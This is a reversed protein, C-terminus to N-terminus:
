GTKSEQPGEETLIRSIIGARSSVNLKRMLLKLYGKITNPSLSLTGAIEKNSKDLLLLQVVERERRSLHHERAFLYLNPGFPTIRMLLFLCEDVGKSTDPLHNLFTSGWVAYQRKKSQIIEIFLPGDKNEGMTVKEDLM